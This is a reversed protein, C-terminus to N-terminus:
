KRKPKDHLFKIFAPLSIVAATVCAIEGLVAIMGFSVFAQNGAILLSGYGIVTTLSALMVAGGTNKVAEIIGEDGNQRLRQFINVGYDVGIGFTIPLAIFNLFNIKLGYALIFGTMWTFGIILAFLTQAITPIHRFLVVVLLIVALLALATARPGDVEIAKIMDYSVPLQGAVPTGPRITDAWKRGSLVFREIDKVDDVAALKKDLLVIKGISGDKERFKGKVLEPLDAETFEKFSNKNLLEHVITRESEGLRALISPKLSKSIKKLMQIKEKQQKPVFDELTQVSSIVTSDGEKAIDKRILSAIKEVDARDKPLIVMPSVSHGFVDYIYHYLSGAGHTMSEKDRLKNM